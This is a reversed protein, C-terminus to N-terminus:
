SPGDRVDEDGELPGAELHWWKSPCSKLRRIESPARFCKNTRYCYMTFSQSNLVLLSAQTTDLVCHLPLYNNVVHGRAFSSNHGFSYFSLHPLVERPARHGGSHHTYFTVRAMRRDVQFALLPGSGLLPHSGSREVPM